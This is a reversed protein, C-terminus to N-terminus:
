GLELLSEIFNYFYIIKAFLNETSTLHTEEM